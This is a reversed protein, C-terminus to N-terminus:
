WWTLVIDNIRVGNCNDRLQFFVPEPPVIVSSSGFSSVPVYYVSEDYDLGPLPVLTVRGEVINVCQSNQYFITKFRKGAGIKELESYVNGEITTVIGEKSGIRHVMIASSLLDNKTINAKLCSNLKDLDMLWALNLTAKPGSSAGVAQVPFLVGVANMLNGSGVKEEYDKTGKKYTGASLRSIDEFSVVGVEGEVGVSASLTAYIGCEMIRNLVNSNSKAKDGDSLGKLRALPNMFAGVVTPPPPLVYSLQAAGSGLQRVIFGWHLQVKSVLLFVM